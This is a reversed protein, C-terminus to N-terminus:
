QGEEEGTRAPSDPPRCATIFRNVSHLEAIIERHLEMIKDLVQKVVGPRVDYELNNLMEGLEDALQDLRHQM